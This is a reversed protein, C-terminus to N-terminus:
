FRRKRRQLEKGAISNIVSNLEKVGLPPTVRSENWLHMIEVVLKPDVYRRLLYGALQTAANNRTGHNTNQFLNTWYSSEKKQPVNVRENMITKLLWDPAENILVELPHSSLEWQYRGGSIHISPAVVVYGGDGRIDIGPAVGVKNKIGKCFRFFYHAGKSGTIQEVTDPLRGNRKILGELSEHGDHKPDIDLVFINSKIGTPVGINAGPWRHWFSIIKDRDITAEERWNRLLPHKGPSQCNKNGCTCVGNQISHLPIVPWNLHESYGLAARLLKEPESVSFRPFSDNAM